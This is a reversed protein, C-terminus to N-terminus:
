HNLTREGVVVAPNGTLIKLPPADKMLTSRAGIVAGYGITVGPGVFVDAAVWAQPEVVIPKAYIDFGIKRFDHSGTCIYSNQSIVAHAGVHIDGLTYLEVFDGIWAEDDIRLKWPYTIRVTPRILVNRGIRAGFLRLLWRRWGYLPQPSMLFLTDRVLWWLLVYLGSRGRFELPLSFASLDQVTPREAADPPFSRDAAITQSELADPAHPASTRAM